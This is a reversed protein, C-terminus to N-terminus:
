IFNHILNCIFNNEVTVMYFIIYNYIITIIFMDLSVTTDRALNMRLMLSVSRTNCFSKVHIGYFLFQKKFVRARARACVCLISNLFFM